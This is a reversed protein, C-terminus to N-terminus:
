KQTIIEPNRVNCHDDLLWTPGAVYRHSSTERDKGRSTTISNEIKNLTYMSKFSSPIHSLLRLMPKRIIM